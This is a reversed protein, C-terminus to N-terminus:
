LWLRWHQQDSAKNAERWLALMQSFKQWLFLAQLEGKLSGTWIFRYHLTYLSLHEMLRILFETSLVSKMTGALMNVKMSQLNKNM